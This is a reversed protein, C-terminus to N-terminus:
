DESLQISEGLRLAAFVVLACGVPFLIENLARAVLAAAPLPAAAATLYLILGGFAAGALLGIGAHMAASGRKSRALWGLAVGLFAYEAGKVSAILWPSPGAAGAASVGLAALTAKHLARAALFGVPGALLGLAGMAAAARAAAAGIALGVCVIFSWSVKQVTDAVISRLGPVDGAGVQFLLLAAELALGLLIAMWATRLIRRPVDM